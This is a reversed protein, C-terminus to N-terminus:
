EQGPDDPQRDRSPVDPGALAPETAEGNEWVYFGEGSPAGTKGDAVLDRLLGPPDFRPGVEAALFELTELRGRLGASDARELPGIPHGYGLELAGDVSAVGAMDEAVLRMAEAELALELRTAAVGPGDRVVVPSRDLGEVFRETRDCTSQSTQDAVVVEVLPAALPDRFQLGIARDPHRLGAAAATVSVGTASPVVLTERDVTEEIDALIGQLASADTTTTEVVVAAGSVAAEVGTTATLRDRVADADPVDPDDLRREIDDLGDMAANADDAQLAVDHGAVACVQAIARGLSGAGLVAVDM